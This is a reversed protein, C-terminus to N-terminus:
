NTTYRDWVVIWLNKLTNEYIERDPILTSKIKNMRIVYSCNPGQKQPQLNLRIHNKVLMCFQAPYACISNFYFQAFSKLLILEFFNHGCSFEIWKRFSVVMLQESFNANPNVFINTCVNSPFLEGGSAVQWVAVQLKKKTFEFVCSRHGVYTLPSFLTLFGLWCEGHSM